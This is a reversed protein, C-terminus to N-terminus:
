PAGKVRKEMDRVALNWAAAESGAAGLFRDEAWAAWAKGDGKVVYYGLWAEAFRKAEEFSVSIGSYRGAM